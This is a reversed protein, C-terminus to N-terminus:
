LGLPSISLVPAESNNIITQARSGIFFEKFDKEQQTMIMVLDAEIKKSYDLVAGVLSQEGKKIEKIVSICRVGNQEIHKQVEDLQKVIRSKVENKEALLVSIIYIDAKFIKATDLAVKVKDTTQKSLDLPLLIKDCGKKHRKGKITIVPCPATKVVRLSNSGIFNSRAGGKTGMVILTADIKAAVKVIKNYIKGKVVITSFNLNTKQSEYDALDKLNNEVAGAIEDLGKYFMKMTPSLKEIVYLLVIEADIEKALNYSQSLAILSQKSFDVPVLIKNIKSSM